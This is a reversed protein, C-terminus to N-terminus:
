PGILDGLSLLGYYTYECDLVDEAPHGRFGGRVSWLTDLYDLNRERIEDLDVGVLTLAHLATATSLLDPIAIDPGSPIACFGGGPEARAALWQLASEPLPAQLYHFITIAAATAATASVAMTPENSFGGDPMQLSRVSELVGAPELDDVELDQCIGLALFSGYVHGREAGASTSFGGDAACFHMLHAIMARRSGPDLTDNTGEALNIRCRVLSALHVLDLSQGTEFGRVYDVVRELPLKVDLAVSAELGFVTYYLDSKGDRGQFGGDDCLHCRLFERVADVSDGLAEAARSVAKRMDLRITM